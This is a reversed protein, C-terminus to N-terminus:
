GNSDKEAEILKEGFELELQEPTVANALMDLLVEIKTKTTKM